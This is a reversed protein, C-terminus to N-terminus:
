PWAAPDARSPSRHLRRHVQDWCRSAERARSKLATKSPPAVGGARPLQNTSAGRLAGLSGHGGGIGTPEPPPSPPQTPLAGLAHLRQEIASISGGGGGNGSGGGGGNGGGGGGNGLILSLEEQAGEAGGRYHEDLQRRELHRKVRWAIWRAINRWRFSRASPEPYAQQLLASLAPHGSTRVARRRLLGGRTLARRCEPRRRRRM